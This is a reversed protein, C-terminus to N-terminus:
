KDESTKRFLRGDNVIILMNAISIFNLEEEEDDM